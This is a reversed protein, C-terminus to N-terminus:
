LWTATSGVLTVTFASVHFPSEQPVFVFLGPVIVLTILAFIALATWGAPTLFPDTKPAYRLTAGPPVPTNRKGPGGGTADPTDGHTAPGEGEKLVAQQM